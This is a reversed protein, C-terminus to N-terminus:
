DDKKKEIACAKFGTVIYVNENNSVWLCTSYSSNLAKEIDGIGVHPETVVTLCNNFWNVNKVPVGCKRLRDKVKKEFNDSDHAADLSFGEDFDLLGKSDGYKAVLECEKVCIVKPNNSTFGVWDSPIDLVKSIEKEYVSRDDRKMVLQFYNIGFLHHRAVYKIPVDNEELKRKITRCNKSGVTNGRTCSLEWSYM